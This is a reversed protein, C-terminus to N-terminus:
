GVRPQWLVQKEGRVFRLFAVASAVNLLAFYYCYRSLAFRGARNVGSLELVCLAAFILQSVVGAVYITGRAVLWWNLVVALLLPMFSLYRLLKHSWLQWAFLPHRLPNLLSKNDRLAWLARLAVRVRMRFESSQTTLTEETLLAEPEYVVRYGRAVVRLPLVFDPLQDARMPEYLSRRVADVGGDVGVISGLKTEASRLANEYRMFASCGDGVLSGDPNVYVMKGTVYGVSSDAFNKVLQRVTDPKYISNADAFVIIDGSALPVALNLASTKGQRPVQRLLRVRPDSRAIREVIEDTGDSSEDSVVIMELQDSPYDQALKNLVSAEIHAAENYAATIITVKPVFNEDHRVPRACLSGALRVVLPYVVYPYAGVFLLIFFAAELM